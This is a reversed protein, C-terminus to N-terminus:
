IIDILITQYTCSDVVGERKYVISTTYM